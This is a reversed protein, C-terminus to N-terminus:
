LRLRKRLNQRWRSDGPIEPQTTPFASWWDGKEEPVTVESADVAEGTSNKSSADTSEQTGSAEETASSGEKESDSSGGCGILLSSAMAMCLLSALLKKKM